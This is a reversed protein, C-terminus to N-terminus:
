SRRTFPRRCIVLSEALLLLGTGGGLIVVCILFIHWLLDLFISITM